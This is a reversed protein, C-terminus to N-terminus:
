TKIIYRLRVYPPLHDVTNHTATIDGSGNTVRILRDATGGTETNGSQQFTHSTHTHNTTGGSGAMSGADAGRIFQGVLDPVNFTTSGDGVGFTTGITDFLEVYETRSVAAGDCVLWGEPADVAGYAVVTGSPVAGSAQKKIADYLEQLQVNLATTHEKPDFEGPFQIEQLQPKKM